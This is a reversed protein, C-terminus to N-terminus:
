AARARIEALTTENFLQGNHYVLQMVDAFESDLPGRDLRAIMLENNMKSRVLTLVGELSKKGQDTIPDKAIGKWTGDEMLIACAKQAFKFTDRNVKQLLAGGSGFIVNDASFGLVATIKGLLSRIASHDVGDGQIIGVNNIKRYGKANTVSGFALEQLHLIRPVVEQMDGSDPRFVVKAKTTIIEDKLVTCLLETERYVDYGDIVISIIGGEVANSLQTRLYRIADERGGGFSCEVSHETAYVSYASM